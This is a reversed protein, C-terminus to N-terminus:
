GAPLGAHRWVATESCIEVVRAGEGYWEPVTVRQWPTARDALVKAPTPLRAGKTRPRGPTKPRRPPAPPYLAADLRLRTVCTVDQRVLGALLELAAFSSDAVLVLARAPMWRRAQLVLQRAWDTLKKHRRSHQRNYRESPALTTLFPLAWVRGAWPIPVLLMLSLWRLGSAKVFHGKSSRVPDRYIGKAGICKGRRREIHDDLGLLVPGTPVFADLLLGLLVRAAGPWELRRPQARPSLERVAAGLLAREHALHQHGHAPGAGLHRRDAAGPRAALHTPSLAARLM